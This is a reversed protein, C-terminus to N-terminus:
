LSWLSSIPSIAIGGLSEECDGAMAGGHQSDQFVLDFDSELLREQADQIQAMDICFRPPTLFFSLSQIFTLIM